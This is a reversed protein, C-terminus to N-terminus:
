LVKQANRINFSSPKDLVASLCSIRTRKSRVMISIGTGHLEELMWCVLFVLHVKNEQHGCMGTDTDNWSM